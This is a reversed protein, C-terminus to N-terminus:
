DKLNVRILNVKKKKIRVLRVIRLISHLNFKGKKRLYKPKGQYGEISCKRLQFEIKFSNNQSLLSPSVFILIYHTEMLMNAQYKLLLFNYFTLNM